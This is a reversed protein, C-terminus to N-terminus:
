FPAPVAKWSRVPKTYKVSRNVDFWIFSVDIPFKFYRLKSSILTNKIKGGPTKACAPLLENLLSLITERHLDIVSCILRVGDNRGPM